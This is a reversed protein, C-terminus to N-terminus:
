QSKQSKRWQELVEQYEAKMAAQHEKDGAGYKAMLPPTWRFVISIRWDWGNSNFQGDQSAPFMSHLVNGAVFVLLDGHKTLYEDAPVHSSVDPKEQELVYDKTGAYCQPCEGGVRFTREQGITHM